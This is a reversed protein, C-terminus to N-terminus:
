TTIQPTTTSLPDYPRAVEDCSSPSGGSRKRVAFSPSTGQRTSPHLEICERLLIRQCLGVTGSPYRGSFNRLGPFLADVGRHTEDGPVGGRHEEHGQDHHGEEGHEAA